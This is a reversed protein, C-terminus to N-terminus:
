RFSHEISRWLWKNTPLIGNVGIQKTLWRSIAIVWETVDKGQLYTLFLMAQQYLNQMMTNSHNVGRYLAWQM